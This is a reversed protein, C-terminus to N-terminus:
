QRQTGTHYLYALTYQHIATDEVTVCTTDVSVSGHQGRERREQVLEEVNGGLYLRGVGDEYRQSLYINM